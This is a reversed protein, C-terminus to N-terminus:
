AGQWEGRLGQRQGAAQHKGCSTGCCCCLLAFKIFSKITIKKSTQVPYLVRAAGRQGVGM